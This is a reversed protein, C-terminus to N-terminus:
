KPLDRGSRWQVQILLPYRNRWIKNLESAPSSHRRDSLWLM